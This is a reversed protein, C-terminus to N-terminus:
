GVMALLDGATLIKYKRGEHEIESGGYKSMLVTDGAKVEMPTLEGDDDRKGPGVALVKARQPKEKASDPIIIGGTTVQDEEIPEVLVHDGVPRIKTAM